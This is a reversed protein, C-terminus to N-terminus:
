RGHADSPPPPQEEARGVTPRVVFVRKTGAPETLPLEAARTRSPMFFSPTESRCGGVTGIGGRCGLDALKSGQDGGGVPIVGGLRDM